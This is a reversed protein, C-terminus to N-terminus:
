PAQLGGAQRRAQAWTGMRACPVQLVVAGSRVLPDSHLSTGAPFALVDGVQAAARATVRATRSRSASIALGSQRGASAPGVCSELGAGGISSVLVLGSVLEPHQLALSLAVGGGYSHGVVVAPAARREVLLAALIAAQEALPLARGGTAGYGPRDPLLTRARWSLLRAVPELDRGRGPQGHLLLVTPGEGLDLVALGTEPAGPPTHETSGM